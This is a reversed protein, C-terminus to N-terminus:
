PAVSNIEAARFETGTRWLKWVITALKRALTLRAMEARMGKALLNEYYAQFPARRRAEEAAGKFVGKLRHNFEHTLGMTQVARTKRKIEGQRMEYESSTRVRVALGSYSWLQRKTHFREATGLSALLQAARVAGIGPISVLWRREPCKDSVQLMERKAQKRLAQLADLEEYLWEARRHRGSETLQSLYCARQKSQYIASGGTGIGRGRYLAKLRNKCRTVDRVLMEYARVLEQLEQLHAAVKYVRKIAQLRLLTALKEADGQDTKNGVRLLHNVRPNCIVVERVVPALVERAWAALTGEEVVVQVPGQLGRCVAQLSEATTAMVCRMLVEGQADMVCVSSSASHLDIGVYKTENM